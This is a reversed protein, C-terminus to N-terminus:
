YCNFGDNTVATTGATLTVVFNVSCDETPLFENPPVRSRSWEARGSFTVEDRRFMYTVTTPQGAFRDAEAQIVRLAVEYTLFPKEESICRREVVSARETWYYSDYVARVEIQLHCTALSRSTEGTVSASCIFRRLSKRKCRGVTSTDLERRMQFDFAASEAASRAEFSRLKHPPAATAAANLAVVLLTVLGAFGLRKM